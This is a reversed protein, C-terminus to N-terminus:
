STASLYFSAALAILSIGVGGLGYLRSQPNKGVAMSVLGVGVGSGALAYPFIILGLGGLMMSIGGLVRGPDTAPQIEMGVAAESPVQTKAQCKNCKGRKGANAVATVIKNGCKICHFTITETM